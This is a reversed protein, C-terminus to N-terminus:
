AREAFAKFAKMSDHNQKGVIENIIPAAMKMMLGVELTNVMVWRTRSPGEEFFRNEVSNKVGKGEYRLAYLDPLRREVITETMELKLGHSEIVVKAKAGPHGQQGSLLQFTKVGPQWKPFNLPDMILELVRERPLNIVVESASKM